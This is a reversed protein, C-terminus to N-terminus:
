DNTIEIHNHPWHKYIINIYGDKDVDTVHQTKGNIYITTQNFNDGEYLVPIKLVEDRKVITDHKNTKGIIPYYSITQTTDTTSIIEYNNKVPILTLCLFTSIICFIIFIITKISINKM